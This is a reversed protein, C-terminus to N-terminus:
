KIKKSKIISTQARPKKRPPGDGPDSSESEADTGHTQKGQRPRTISPPFQYGNFWLPKLEGDTLKWRFEEPDLTQVNFWLWSTDCYLIYM